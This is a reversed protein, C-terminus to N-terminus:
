VEELDTIHITLIYHHFVYEDDNRNVENIRVDCTILGGVGIPNTSLRFNVIVGYPVSITFVRCMTSNIKVLSGIKFM